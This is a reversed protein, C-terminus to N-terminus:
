GSAYDRGSDNGIVPARFLRIEPLILDNKAMASAASQEFFASM